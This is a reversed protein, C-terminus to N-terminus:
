RLSAVLDNALVEAREALSKAAALDAKRTEQAQQMFNQVQKITAQQENNLQRNAISGISSQARSLSQDIASNLQRQQEPTLIDGLRPSEPPPTSSPAQAPAAPGQAPPAAPRAARKPPAPQDNAAPKNKQYSHEDKPGTPAPTATAPAPPPVATPNPSIAEPTPPATQPPLQPPEEQVPTAVAPQNPVPVAVQKKHCASDVLVLLGLVVIARLPHHM